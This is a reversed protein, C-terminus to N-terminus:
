KWLKESPLSRTNNPLSNMMVLTRGPNNFLVIKTRNMYQIVYEFFGHRCMNNNLTSKLLTKALVHAYRNNFASTGPFTASRDWRKVRRNGCGRNQRQDLGPALLVAPSEVSGFLAYIVTTKRKWFSHFNGLQRVSFQAIKYSFQSISM